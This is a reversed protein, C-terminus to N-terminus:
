PPIPADLNNVVDVITLVDFPNGGADPSNGNFVDAIGADIVGGGSGGGSVPPGCDHMCDGIMPPKEIDGGSCALLFISLWLRKFRM